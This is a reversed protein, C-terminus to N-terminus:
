MFCRFLWFPESSLGSGGFRSVQFVQVSMNLKGIEDPAERGPSM